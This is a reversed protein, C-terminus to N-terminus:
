SGYWNFDALEYVTVLHMITARYAEPAPERLSMLNIQDEINGQQLVDEYGSFWALIDSFDIACERWNKYAKYVVGEYNVVMRTWYKHSEVLCLNNCLTEDYKCASIPHRGWDSKDIAHAAILAAFFGHQTEKGEMVAKNFTQNQVFQSWPVLKEMFEIQNDLLGKRKLRDPDVYNVNVM